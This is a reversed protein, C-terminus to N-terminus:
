KIISLNTISYDLITNESENLVDKIATLAHSVYSSNLDTITFESIKANTFIISLSSKFNSCFSKKTNLSKNISNQVYLCNMRFNSSVFLQIMLIILSINQCSFNIFNYNPFLSLILIIIPYNLSLFSHLFCYQSYSKLIIKDTITEANWSLKLYPITLFFYVINPFFIIIDYLHPKNILSTINFFNNKTFFDDNILFDYLIFLISHILSFSFSILYFKKFSYSKLSIKKNKIDQEILKNKQNSYSYLYFITHINFFIISMYFYNFLILFIRFFYIGLNIKNFNHLIIVISGLVIIIRLIIELVINTFVVRFYGVKFIKIKYHIKFLLIFIFLTIFASSSTIISIINSILKLTGDMTYYIINKLNLIYNM